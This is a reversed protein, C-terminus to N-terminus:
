SLSDIEIMRMGWDSTFQLSLPDHLDNLSIYSLHNSRNGSPSSRLTGCPV